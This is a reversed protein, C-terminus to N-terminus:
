KREMRIITETYDKSTNIGLYKRNKSVKIFPIKLVQINIQQLMCFYLENKNVSRSDVAQRDDSITNLM